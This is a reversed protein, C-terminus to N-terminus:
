QGMAAQCTWFPQFMTESDETHAGHLICRGTPDRYMAKMVFIGVLAFIWMTGEDIEEPTVHAPHQPFVAIEHTQADVVAIGLINQTVREVAPNFAGM